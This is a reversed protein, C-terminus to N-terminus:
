RRPSARRCDRDPFPQSVKEAEFLNMLFMAINAVLLFTIAQRGPQKERQSNGEVRLKSAIYILSSQIGVQVRQIRQVGGAQTLRTTHVLLLVVTLAKWKGREGLLGVVGSVSYILEGSLGFAM